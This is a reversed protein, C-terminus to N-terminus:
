EETKMMKILRKGSRGSHLFLGLKKNRHYVGERFYTEFHKRAKDLVIKKEDAKDVYFIGTYDGWKGDEEIVRFEATQRKIFANYYDELRRINKKMKEMKDKILDIESCIVGTGFCEKCKANGAGNQPPKGLKTRPKGTGDCKSCEVQLQEEIVQIKKTLKDITIAKNTKEKM